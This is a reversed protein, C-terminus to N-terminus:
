EQENEDEELMESGLDVIVPDTLINQQVLLCGALTEPTLDFESRFREVLNELEISFADQQELYDMIKKKAADDQEENENHM